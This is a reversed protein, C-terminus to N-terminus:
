DGIELIRWNHAVATDRLKKDPCVAVANQCINLMPIDAATDGYASMIKGDQLFPQLQDVKSEGTNFPAAMKGTFVDNEYQLPTGIAEIGLKQAVHMLIPEIVGTVLIVRRGNGKHALLEDVVVQRRQPWVEQETAYAGMALMQERSYGAFLALMDAIWQEKFARVNPLLGLRYLLVKFMRQRLFRKFKEGQGNAELYLRMGRWAEGASLTGEVDSAVVVATNDAKDHLLNSHIVM